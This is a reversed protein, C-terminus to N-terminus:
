IRLYLFCFTLLQMYQQSLQTQGTLPQEYIWQGAYLVSENNIIILTVFYSFIHM